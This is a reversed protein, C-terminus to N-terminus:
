PKSFPPSSAAVRAKTMVQRIAKVLESPDRSKEVFCCPELWKLSMEAQPNQLSSVFLIPIAKSWRRLGLALTWNDRASMNVDMVLVDPETKTVAEIFDQAKSTLGCVALDAEANILTALAGAFFAHDDMVFVRSVWPATSGRTASFGSSTKVPSSMSLNGYGASGVDALRCSNSAKLFAVMM